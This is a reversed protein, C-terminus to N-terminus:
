REKEKKKPGIEALLMGGIILMCGIAVSATLQETVGDNGPILMAMAIAFVPECTFILAAETPTTDQQVMAWLTYAVATGFIGTTLLAIVVQRSLIFAPFGTFGWGILYLVACVSFQIMALLRPEVVATFHAVSLIHIACLVACGLTIVDGVNITGFDMGSLFILGAMALGVGIVANLDPAKKLVVASILPVLVVSIGTILASKSATTYLLGVVQLLMYSFVLAGVIAGNKISVANVNKLKKINVLILIVAAISFRIGLFALPSIFDLANKMFIFSSGWILTILLLALNARLKKNM